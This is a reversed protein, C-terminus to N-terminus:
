SPRLLGLRTFKLFASVDLNNVTLTKAATDVSKPLEVWRALPVSYYEVRLAAAGGNLGATDADSYHVVLAATTPAGNPALLLNVERQSKLGSPLAPSVDTGRVVPDFSVVIPINTNSVNVVEMGDGSSATGGSSPLSTTKTDAANPQAGVAAENPDTSIANPDCNNNDNSNSNSNSNGNGNGNSNSNSNSDCGSSNDNSNNNSNSNSNGNSNGNGNGNADAVSAPESAPASATTQASTITVSALVALVLMSLLLFGLRARLRTQSANM